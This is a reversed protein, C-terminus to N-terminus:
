NTFVIANRMINVKEMLEEATIICLAYAEYGNGELWVLYNDISFERNPFKAYFVLEEIHKFRNEGIIQRIRHRMEKLETEVNM